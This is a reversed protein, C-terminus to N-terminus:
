DDIRAERRETQRERSVLDLPARGQALLRFARAERTAEPSRHGRPLAALRSRLCRCPTGYCHPCPASFPLPPM